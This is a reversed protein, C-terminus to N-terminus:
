SGHTISGADKWTQGGDRSMKWGVQTRGGALTVWSPCVMLEVGAVVFTIAGEFSQPAEFQNPILRIRPYTPM